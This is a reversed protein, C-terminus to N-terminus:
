PNSDWDITSCSNPGDYPSVYDALIWRAQARGLNWHRWEEDAESNELERNVEDLVCSRYPEPLRDLAPVADASLDRMYYLDIYGTDAFRIANQEAIYRDPNLVAIGLLALVATGVIASPLWTSRGRLRVGAAMVLVFVVGLWIECVGVLLRLRTFGYAQEYAWM